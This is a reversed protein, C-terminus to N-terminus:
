HAFGAASRGTAVADDVPSAPEVDLTTPEVLTAELDATGHV